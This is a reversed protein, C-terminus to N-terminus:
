CFKINFYFRTKRQKKEELPICCRNKKPLIIADHFSPENRLFRIFISPSNRKKVITTTTHSYSINKMKKEQWFSNKRFSYPPVNKESFLLNKTTITFLLSLGLQKTNTM